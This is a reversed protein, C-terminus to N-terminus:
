LNDHIKQYILSSRVKNGFIGVRISLKTTNDSLAKLRITTNRDDTDRGVIEASLAEKFDKTVAIGLPKVARRTAAYVADINKAEVAELDGKVYAVTGVAGVGVAAALCGSMIVASGVLFVILTFHSKYM